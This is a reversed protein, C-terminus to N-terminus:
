ASRAHAHAASTNDSTDSAADTAAPRRPHFASPLSEMPELTTAMPMAPGRLAQCIRKAFVTTVEAYVDDLQRRMITRLGCAKYDPPFEDDVFQIHHMALPLECPIWMVPLLVRTREAAEAAHQKWQAHRDLFVQVERGCWRSNTFHSSYFAVLLRSTKLAHALHEPWDYGTEIDRGAFFAIEDSPLTADIQSIENILDSVFRDFLERDSEHERNRSAYSIFVRHPM